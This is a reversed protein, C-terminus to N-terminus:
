WGIIWPQGGPWSATILATIDLGAIRDDIIVAIRDSQICADTAQSTRPTSRAM